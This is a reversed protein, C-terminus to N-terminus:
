CAELYYQHQGHGEGAGSHSPLSSFMFEPLLKERGKWGLSVEVHVLRLSM